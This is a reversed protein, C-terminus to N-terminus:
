TSFDLVCPAGILEQTLVIPPVTVAVPPPSIAGAITIGTLPGSATISGVLVSDVWVLGGTVVEFQTLEILWQNANAQIALAMVAPSYACTIEVSGTTLGSDFGPCVFEQFEWSQLGDGDGADFSTFPANNLGDLRHWRAKANGSSDMWKLTQTYVHPGHDPM